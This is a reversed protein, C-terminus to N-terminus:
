TRVMADFIFRLEEESKGYESMDKCFEEFCISGTHRSDYKKFIRRLIGIDESNSKHAVVMLAQM